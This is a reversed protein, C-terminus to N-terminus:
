CVRAVLSLVYLDVTEVAFFDPFNFLLEVTASIAACRQVVRISLFSPHTLELDNLSVVKPVFRFSTNWKRGTFLVSEDQCM